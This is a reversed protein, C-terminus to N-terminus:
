NHQLKNSSTLPVCDTASCLDPFICGRVQALMGTFLVSVAAADNHQWTALSWALNVLSQPSCSTNQKTSHHVHLKMDFRSEDESNTSGNTKAEEVFSQLYGCRVAKAV